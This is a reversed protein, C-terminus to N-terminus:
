RLRLTSFLRRIGHGVAWAIAWYCPDTALALLGVRWGIPDLLACGAFAFGGGVFPIASVHRDHGRSMFVTVWFAVIVFGGLALLVIGLATTV